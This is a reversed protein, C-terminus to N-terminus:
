HWYREIMKEMANRGVINTAHIGIPYFKERKVLYDLISVADGGLWAYKGLDYDMDILEITGGNAEIDEIVAITENVSKTRIYGTPPERLSDVYLKFSINKEFNLHRKDVRELEELKDIDLKETVNEDPKQIEFYEGRASVATIFGEFERDECVVRFIEAKEYTLEQAEFLAKLKDKFLVLM